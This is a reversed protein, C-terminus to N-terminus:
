GETDWHPEPPLLQKAQLDSKAFLQEDFPLQRHPLAGAHM